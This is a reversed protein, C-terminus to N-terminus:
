NDCLLEPTSNNIKAELNKVGFKNRPNESTRREVVSEDQADPPLSVWKVVPQHTEESQQHLVLISITVVM